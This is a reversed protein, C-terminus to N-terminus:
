KKKLSSNLKTTIVNMKPVDSDDSESSSSDYSYNGGYTKLAESRKRAWYFRYYADQRQAEVTKTKNGDKYPSRKYYLCYPDEVLVRNLSKRSVSWDKCKNWQGSPAKCLAYYHHGDYVVVAYLDYVIAPGTKVETFPKINITEPFYSRIKESHM